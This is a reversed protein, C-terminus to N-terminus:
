SGGDESPSWVLEGQYYYNGSPDIATGDTYYSWNYGPDTPSLNGTDILEAAGSAGVNFISGIKINKSVDKIVSYADGAITTKEMIKASVNGLAEYMKGELSLKAAEVAAQKQLVAIAVYNERNKANEGSTFSNQISDRFIQMKNNYEALGVQIANQANIENARNTAATAATAIERRWAANSQDIILRNQANFQERQNQAEANFRGITNYQDTNFQAMANVQTANFQQVQATLGAFFQTVQNASAANFQRAANEAAQDSLTAQVNSQAKFLEAQQSYNLNAMDIQLFAQANAVAAQQRNNLNATELTAMQAANAMILAQKNGLNSMDMTQALRANELAIQQQASFNQNAIDAIKAANLVRTQFNQDFEQGLFQARQQATLIATQQRNSLNQLGMQQYMQADASAIPLAAELTAQIMAQGALSSAGLGRQALISTVNRLSAAAWPPPKGAEFTSMLNNLQGQVTMDATVVGQAAEAKKLELEVANSDVASGSIIEGVEENRIPAGTIKTAVGEASKLSGLATTSPATEAASVKAQAGVVGQAAKLSQVATSVSPAAAAAQMTSAATTTPTTAGAATPVAGATVTTASPAVGAGAGTASLLQESTSATTSPTITTASRVSPEVGPTSTPAPTPSPTPAPSPAPSPPPVYTGSSPSPTPAPTPAPAPTPTPTPAPTPAPTPTYTNPVPTVQIVPAPAPAPSPTSSIPTQEPGTPGYVPYNTPLGTLPPTAYTAGPKEAQAANVFIAIENPDIESGFKETYHQLGVTDPSRGLVNQYLDQITVAGGTQYKRVIGGRAMYKELVTAYKRSMAPDSKVFEDFMQMPGDYGLKRAVIEKQKMNFEKTAMNIAV